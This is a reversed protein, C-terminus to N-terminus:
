SGTTSCLRPVSLLHLVTWNLIALEMKTGVLVVVVVVLVWAWVFFFLDLLGAYCPVSQWSQCIVSEFNFHGVCELLSQQFQGHRWLIPQVAQDSYPQNNPLIILLM